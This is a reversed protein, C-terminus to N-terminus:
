MKIEQVLLDAKAEARFNKSKNITDNLTLQLAQIQKHQSDLITQISNIFQLQQNITIQQSNLLQLQADVAKLLQNNVTDKEHIVEQLKQICDYESSDFEKVYKDTVYALVVKGYRRVLAMVYEYSVYKKKAEMVAFKSTSVGLVKAIEEQKIKKDQRFRKIDIMDNGCKILTAHGCVM